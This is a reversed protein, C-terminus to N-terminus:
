KSVQEFFYAAATFIGATETRLRQNGLSVGKINQQLLEQIEHKSFDGEPGILVTINKLPTIEKLSIKEFEQYCHAVFLNDRKQKIFDSFKILPNLKPFNTRLSQKCAAIIQKECKEINLNKRESNSCLLPTIESIGLETAKELFFEFRDINKTPAIAIHLFRDEKNKQSNIILEFTEINATKGKINLIAKALNGQGDTIMIEDGSNMRLVKVLHHSEEPLLEFESESIFKGVFLNM